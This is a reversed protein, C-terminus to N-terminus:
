WQPVELDIKGLEYFLEDCTDVTTDEYIGCADKGIIKFGNTTCHICINLETTYDYVMIVDDVSIRTKIDVEINGNTVVGVRDRVEQVKDKM